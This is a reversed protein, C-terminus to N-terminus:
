NGEAPFEWNNVLPIGRWLGNVGDGSVCILMYDFKGNFSIQGSVGPSNPASPIYNPNYILFNAITKKGIITQDTNLTVYRQDLQGSNTLQETFIQLGNFTRM